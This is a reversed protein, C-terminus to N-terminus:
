EYPAKKADDLEKWLEASRGFAEKHDLGEKEKLKTVTEMNFFLWASLGRKPKINNVPV